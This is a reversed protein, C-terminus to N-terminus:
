PLDGEDLPQADWASEYEAQAREFEREYEAEALARRDAEAAFESKLSGNEELHACGESAWVHCIPCRHNGQAPGCSNCCFDGCMCAM